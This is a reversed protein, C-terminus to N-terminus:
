WAMARLEGIVEAMNRGLALFQRRIEDRSAWLGVLINANGSRVTALGFPCDGTREDGRFIRRFCFWLRFTRGQIRRSGDYNGKFEITQGFQHATLDEICAPRRSGTNMEPWRYKRGSTGFTAEAGSCKAPGLHCSWGGDSDRHFGCLNPDPLDPTKDSVDIDVSGCCVVSHSDRTSRVVM